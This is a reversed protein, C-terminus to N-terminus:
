ASFKIIGRRKMEFFCKATAQVDATSNHAEAFDEGNFLAKHLEALKPWKYKGEFKGPFKCFDTGANMTCIIKRGGAITLKDRVILPSKEKPFIRYIEAGIISRDFDINHGILVRAFELDLFLGSIASTLSVGEALARAQTIGHLASVNAPIEFGDPRIIYNGSKILNAGKDYLLTSLQVMRPWNASDSCPAKYDKPLGTTETDIFLYM